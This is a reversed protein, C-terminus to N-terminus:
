IRSLLEIWKETIVDVDLRSSIKRANAGLKERLDDDEILKLVCDALADVDGVPYILGNEGDKILERPGSVCDTSVCATGAAMAECLVNPFGEYLSSLAFVKAQSLEAFPKDTSGCLRVKENLGLSSITEEIREKESGTGFIKLVYEPHLVSVKNFAKILTPFDKQKELRGISVVTDSKPIDEGTLQASLSQMDIPNEVVFLKNKLHKPYFEKVRETQVVVASAFRYLFCSLRFALRSHEKLPNNRDCVVVKYKRFINASAALLNCRSLFCVNVADRELSLFRRVTRRDFIWSFVGSKGGSKVKHLKVNKAVPYFQPRKELSLVGVEHGKSALKASITTVVKEAGGGSLSSILFNIKM